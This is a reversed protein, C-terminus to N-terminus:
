KVDAVLEPGNRGNDIAACVINLARGNPLVCPGARM